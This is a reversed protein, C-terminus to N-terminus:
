SETMGAVPLTRPAFTPLAPACDAPELPITTPSETLNVVPKPRDRRSRPGNGDSIAAVFLRHSLLPLSNM